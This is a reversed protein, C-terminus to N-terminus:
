EKKATQKMYRLGCKGCHHRNQHEAMFTAIFIYIYIYIIRMPIGGGCRNCELKLHGIKGNADVKYYQLIHLKQNKHKHPIRKPKTFVKKKRKGKGGLLNLHVEVTSM